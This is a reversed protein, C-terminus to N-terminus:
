VLTQIARRLRRAGEELTADGKAFCFRLVKRDEGNGYFASVPIAAVGGEMTLRRALTRDPLDSLHGYSALQFYSGECPPLRLGSDELLHRFFDRRGQYFQNLEGYWDPRSLMFDAIAHQSPAHVCFTIFQHCRRFEAALAHPALCYAVKWGTVHYTKGFSSIVLSRSRLEPHAAVSAHDVNDYCMHEYVEDSIVAIQTTRLRQALRDLDERRWIRGTPNHPSNIIILRTRPTISNDLEAWDPRYDPATLRLPVLTGGALLVGPAYSDFSPEFVIVEDGPRTLCAIATYVGQTAGATITIEDGPDYDVGYLAHVKAAIAERLRVVGAMPAYQNLGAQAHRHLAEVLGDPASFDPFGQSLNIAGHAQALQTMETFITTGTGPLRSEIRLDEKMWGNWVHPIGQTPQGRPRFIILIRDPPATATSRVAGSGKKPGDHAYSDDSINVPIHLRQLGAKLVCRTDAEVPQGQQSIEDAITGVRSRYEITDGAHLRASGDDQAAIMFLGHQSIRLAEIRLCAGRRQPRPLLQLRVLEIENTPQREHGLLIPTEERMGAGLVRFAPDIDVRRAGSGAAKVGIEWADAETHKAVHVSLDQKVPRPRIRGGSPEIRHWPGFDMQRAGAAPGRQRARRTLRAVPIRGGGPEEEVECALRDGKMPDRVVDVHRRM